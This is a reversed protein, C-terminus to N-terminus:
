FHTNLEKYVRELSELSLKRTEKWIQMLEKDKGMELKQNVINVEDQLTEDSELRKVADVYISAIWSEDKSLSEKSHYKQYCWIWKAVHMGTDGQYNTRIVKNGQFEFIRSLSEGLSTGRIHGVHFAKHTNAQSFEIMIKDKGKKSSGYKDGEKKIKKLTNLALDKRNFFFNLYPGKSEVKEFEESKIKLSLEKAIEM